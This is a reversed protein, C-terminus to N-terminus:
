YSTSLVHIEHSTLGMDILHPSFTLSFVTLLQSDIKNKGPLFLVRYNLGQLFLYVYPKFKLTLTEFDVM